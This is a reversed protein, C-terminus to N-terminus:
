DHFHEAIIHILDEDVPLESALCLVLDQIEEDWNYFKAFVKARSLWAYCDHVVAELVEENERARQYARTAETLKERVHLSWLMGCIERLSAVVMRGEESSFLNESKDESLSSMPSEGSRLLKVYWSAALHTIGMSHFTVFLLRILSSLQHRILVLNEDEDEGMNLQPLHMPPTPIHVDDNLLLDLKGLKTKLKNMLLDIVWSSLDSGTMVGVTFLDVVEPYLLEPDFDFLEETNKVVESKISEPLFM